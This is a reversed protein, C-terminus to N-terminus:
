ASTNKLLNKVEFIRQIVTIIGGICLIFMALSLWLLWDTLGSLGMSILIIAM